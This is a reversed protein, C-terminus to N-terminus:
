SARRLRIARVDGVFLLDFSLSLDEHHSKDFAPTNFLNM